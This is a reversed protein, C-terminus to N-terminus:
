GATEEGLRVRIQQSEGPTLDFAGSAGGAEVAYRGAFGRVNARGDPDTTLTQPKTWWDGRILGMLRECAPKPSMDARVLGSPAGQWAGLDSFDWWTIAEVAPHSFLTRYFEAVQRAQRREGDSTSAWDTRKVHWDADTKLEGSLITLETFHLPKGFRAFRECVDWAQAPGWYGKHMHSQIGIVDFDVGAELCEAILQEYQPTTNFDNLILEAAPRAARAREFCRKILEVRGLRRCLGSVPNDEAYDPMICAENLVDWTPILGEFDTMDREIRELQLREVEEPSEGALWKPAVEHWCLPHGKVAIGADRCWTAMEAIQERNTRGREREYSGWYFPLTAFNLLESFRERYRAAVTPDDRHRLGFANAGFRFRHNTQRITVQQDALPRGDEDAVAITARATRHERIREEVAPPNLPADPPADRDNGSM